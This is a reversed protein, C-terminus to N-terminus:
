HNRITDHLMGELRAIRDILARVELGHNTDLMNIYAEITEVQMKAEKQYEPTVHELIEDFTSSILQYTTNTVM